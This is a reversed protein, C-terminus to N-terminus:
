GSLRDSSFTIKVHCFVAALELVVNHLHVSTFALLYIYNIVM